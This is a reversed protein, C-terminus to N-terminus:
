CENGLQQIALLIDGLDIRQDHNLDYRGSFRLGTDINPASGPYTGFRDVVARVDEITVIRDHDFDACRDAYATAGNSIAAGLVLALMIAKFM